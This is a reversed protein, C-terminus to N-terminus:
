KQYSLTTNEVVSVCTEDSAEAAAAAFEQDDDGSVGHHEDEVGDGGSSSPLECEDAWRFGAELQTTQLTRPSEAACCSRVQDSLAVRM